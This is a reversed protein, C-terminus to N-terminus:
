RARSELYPEVLPGFLYFAQGLAAGTDFGPWSTPLLENPLDPDASAAEFIPLTTDAFSRLAAVGHPPNLRVEEMQAYARELVSRYRHALAELDWLRCALSQAEAAPMSLSARIMQAGEPTDPILQVLEGWRDSSAVLLGPRLSEYGIARASRRLRDRFARYQEPVGYLVAGFSGGWDPRNGRLQREM